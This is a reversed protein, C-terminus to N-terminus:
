STPGAQICDTAATTPVVSDMGPLRVQIQTGKSPVSTISFSGGEAEVRFRMGALGHASGPHAGTDFGVGDDRVSLHAFGQSCGLTLWVHHAHAHQRINTLSEQVLRYIVLPASAELKVPALKCHVAIGTQETFERALIELTAVLGLHTLSQPHLGEIIRHKLAICHNLTAVLHALLELAAPTTEALQSQVRTADLKASLLLAGLEDHLDRAIRQREDERAIQLQHTLQALAATRRAVEADLTRQMSPGPAVPRTKIKALMAM